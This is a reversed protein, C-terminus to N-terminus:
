SAPGGLEDLLVRLLDSRSVIGCLRGSRLVPVRKIRRQELLAALQGIPTGEEVSVVETAMIEAVSWQGGKHQAGREPEISSRAHRAGQMEFQRMIDGETVMGVVKGDDNVVPLGSVAHDLMARCADVVPTEASVTIVTANMIDKVNM